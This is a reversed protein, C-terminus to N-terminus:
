KGFEATLADLLSELRNARSGKFLVTGTEVGLARFRNVFDAPDSPTEMIVAGLGERVAEAFGGVWFVRLPKLTSALGGLERHLGEAADGLERMEGLVLVLPGPEDRLAELTAKMSVPNANYADNVLTLGGFRMRSFRKEEPTFAEVGAKLDALSIRLEGCVGAVAALNVAAFPAPIALSVEIEEDGIGVLFRGRRGTATEEVGLYRARYQAAPDITSFGVWRRKVDQMAALLEPHDQNVVGVGGPAMHEVLKVKEVAVGSVDRLGELHGAGVNVVVAVDPALIPALSDMEDKLSIGAEFVWYREEGDAKLMSLPLGFLNNLNKDNKATKGLRSLVCSLLEKVTTKGATGTVGVVSAKSKERFRRAARGLAACADDVVLYPVAVDKKCAWGCMPREGVVAPAGRRCAELAFDHGDVRTGKVCVFVDGPGVERSDILVRRPVEGGRKELSGLAGMAAALEALSLRM